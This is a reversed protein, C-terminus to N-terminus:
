RHAEAVRPPMLAKCTVRAPFIRDM